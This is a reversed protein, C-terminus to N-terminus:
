EVEATKIPTPPAGGVMASKKDETAAKAKTKIDITRLGATVGCVGGVITGLGVVVLEGQNQIVAVMLAACLATACVYMQYPRAFSAFLEDFKDLNM